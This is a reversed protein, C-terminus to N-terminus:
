RRPPLRFPVFCGEPAALPEGYEVMRLIRIAVTTIGCQIAAAWVCIEAGGAADCFGDGMTSSVRM